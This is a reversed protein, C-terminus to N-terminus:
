LRQWQLQTRKKEVATQKKHLEHQRAKWRIEWLTEIVAERETKRIRWRKTRWRKERREKIEWNMCENRM